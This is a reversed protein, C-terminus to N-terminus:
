KAGSNTIKGTLPNPITQGTRDLTILQGIAALAPHLSTQAGDKQILYLREPDSNKGPPNLGDLFAAGIYLQSRMLQYSQNIWEAQERATRLERIPCTYGTVWILGSSHNYRKMIKRIAEYHRLVVASDGQPDALIDAPISPLRLSVVPMFGEAGARYLGSLFVLDDMDGASRNSYTPTLGGAVLLVPSGISQLAKWCTKLLTKYAVPDPEAGWGKVTNAGPFLEISLDNQKYRQALFLVLRATAPTDPGNPTSAWRPPNTISILTALEYRGAKRLVFDMEELKPDADRDPWVRAWDLDLGIWDMGISDAAKLALGVELGFPDLRAGYGFKTSEPTGSSGLAPKPLAILSVLLLSIIILRLHKNSRKATM